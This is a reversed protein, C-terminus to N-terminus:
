SQRAESGSVRGQQAEQGVAQTGSGLCPAPDQRFQGLSELARWVSAANAM